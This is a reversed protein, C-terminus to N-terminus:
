SGSHRECNAAVYRALTDYATNMAKFEREAEALAAVDDQPHRDPHLQLARRRFARKLTAPTLGDLTAMDATLGLLRLEAGYLVIKTTTGVPAHPGHRAHQKQERGHQHHQHHSHHNSYKGQHSSTGEGHWKSSDHFYQKRSRLSGLALYEVYTWFGQSPGSGRVLYMMALVPAIFLGGMGVAAGVYVVRMAAESSDDAREDAVM